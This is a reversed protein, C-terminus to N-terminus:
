ALVVRRPRLLRRHNRRNFPLCISSSASRWTMPPPSRIFPEIEDDNVDECSVVNVKVPELGGKQRRPPWGVRACTQGAPSRRYREPISATSVSPSRDLGAAALLDAKHRPSHWQNHARAGSPVLGGCLDNVSRTGLHRRALARRRDPSPAPDGPRRGRPGRLSEEYRLWKTTLRRTGSRCAYEGATSAACIAATRHRSVRVHPDRPSPTSSGRESEAALDSSGTSASLKTRSPCPIITSPSLTGPWCISPAGTSSPAAFRVPGAISIGALPPPRPYRLRSGVIQIDTVCAM